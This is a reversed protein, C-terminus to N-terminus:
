RLTSPSRRADTPHGGPTWTRTTSFPKTTTRTTTRRNRGVNCRRHSLRCNSRDFPSGGDKVPVVEDVEPSDPHPTKLTKDVPQECIWCDHEEALVRRRVQDRRYGNARRPNSM